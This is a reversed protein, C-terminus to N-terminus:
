NEVDREFCGDWVQRAYELTTQYIDSKVIITVKIYLFFM